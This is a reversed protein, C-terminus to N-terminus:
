AGPKTFGPTRGAPSSSTGDYAHYSARVIADVVKGGDLFVVDFTGCKRLCDNEYFLFTQSGATREAVPKGWAAVVEDHTMGPRITAVGGVAPAPAPAPAPTAAPAPASTDTAPIAPAPVVVPTPTPAPPPTTPQQATVAVPVLLTALMPALYRM